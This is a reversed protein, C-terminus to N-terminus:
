EWTVTFSAPAAPIVHVIPDSPPTFRVHNSQDSEANGIYATVWVEYETGETVLPGSNFPPAAIDAVPTHPGAGIPTTELYFRYGQNPPNGPEVAAVPDWTFVADAFVVPSIVFLVFLFVLFLGKAKM